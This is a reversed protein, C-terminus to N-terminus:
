RRNKILSRGIRCAACRHPTCYENRLQILAQSDLASRVPVGTGSWGRTIANNEAPLSALLELASAKISEKGTRSGFAFMVPVAANIILLDAKEPGIHHPCRNGTGDPVYHTTWYPSVPVDFLRHLAERSAAGVVRDFLFDCGAVVAALQVIRTVPRNQARIRSSEWAGAYMPTIDYKRALYRFHDNLRRIYDDFFCGELLGSTGLLLAEVQEAIFAQALAEAVDANLRGAPAALANYVNQAVGAFDGAALAEALRASDTRPADPAADYERYCEGASVSTPPLILLMHLPMGALPEVREGRGSIRAFGGGLMYGTDSGLSDAIAKLAARDTVKYMKALANLVGAADASSGGLGAGIPIDKYIEIDAGRTGFAAAFAEGAKVANNKEPPISESGMGHMYVNILSDRRPKARVTDCVDIPVVVSDILHYGGATGNINLSLNVKAYSRVKTAFM